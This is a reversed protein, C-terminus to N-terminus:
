NKYKKSLSKNKYIISIKKQMKFVVFTIIALFNHITLKKM